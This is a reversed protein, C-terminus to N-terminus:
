SSPGLDGGVLLERLSLGKDEPGEPHPTGMRGMDEPAEGEAQYGPCEPTLVSASQEGQEVTSSVHSFPPKRPQKLVLIVCPPVDPSEYLLPDLLIKLFSASDLCLWYPM